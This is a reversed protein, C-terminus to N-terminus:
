GVGRGDHRGHRLARVSRGAAGPRLIRVGPLGLQPGGAVAVLLRLDLVEVGSLVGQAAPRLPLLRGLARGLVLSGRLARRLVVVLLLVSGLRVLLGLGLRRLALLVRRRRLLDLRVGRGLLRLM